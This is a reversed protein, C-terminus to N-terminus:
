RVQGELVFKSILDTISANNEPAMIDGALIHNSQDASGAIEVLQKRRSDLQEFGKIIWGTDVVTDAPSYITLVSQELQLPLSARVYKVLRMMEIVAAMPYTTSWYRAQLDNQPTWSRTQGAVLSALQPGGPWTLFEAKADQVAFNPSMLVMTSVAEFSPHGAMALALTAGTSTGIVIVQEGIIAGISLAEVADKIWDEARVGQLANQQQGHGALRTEFLNAGLADAIMAGVPAIEQRTASFGHLYVISYRTKSNRREQYWRIRKATDPILAVNANARSESAELWDALDGEFEPVPMNNILKAPAVVILGSTLLFLAALAVKSIRGKM